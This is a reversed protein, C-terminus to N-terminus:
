VIFKILIFVGLVEWGTLQMGQNVIHDMATLAVAGHIVSVIIPTFFLIGVQKNIIKKPERKSLGLKYIM